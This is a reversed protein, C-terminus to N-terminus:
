HVHQLLRKFLKSCVFPMTKSIKRIKCKNFYKKCFRRLYKRCLVHFFPWPTVNSYILGTLTDIITSHDINTKFLHYILNLFDNQLEVIDKVQYVISIVIAFGKFSRFIIEIFWLKNDILRIIYWYITRNETTERLGIM